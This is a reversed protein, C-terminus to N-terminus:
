GGVVEEASGTRAYRAGPLGERGPGHTRGLYRARDARFAATAEALQEPTGIDHWAGDFVHGEIREGQRRATELLTPMDYRGRPPLYDLLAPELVYIGSSVLFEMRPKERFDTVREEEDIHVVGHAIDLHQPALAITATAQSKKHRSWLGAFDLDTLVDANMVLTSDEPPPLLALPGATGLPERELSFDLELGSWRNGGFSAEIMHARYGLSLTVHTFGAGSLQRLILHLIPTGDVAMLPKPITLTAPRLRRGEGGALVVARM